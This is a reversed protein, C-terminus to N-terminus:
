NKIVTAYALEGQTITANFVNTGSVTGAVTAYVTVSDGKYISDLFTGPVLEVYVIVGGALQVQLTMTDIINLATGRVLVDEGLHTGAYAASLENSNIPKYGAVFTTTAGLADSTSTLNGARAAQTQNRSDATATRAANLADRTATANDSHM